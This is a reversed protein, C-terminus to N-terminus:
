WAIERLAEIAEAEEQFKETLCTLKRVDRRALFIYADNRENTQLKLM